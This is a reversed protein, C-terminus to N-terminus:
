LDILDDNVSEHKKETEKNNLQAVREKHEEDLELDFKAPKLGKAIMEDEVQKLLMTDKNVRNDEYYKESDFKKGSFTYSFETLSKANELYENYIDCWPEIFEKNKDIIKQIQDQNKEADKLLTHIKKADKEVRKAIKNGVYLDLKSKYKRATLAVDELFENLEEDTFENANEACVVKEHNILFCKYMLDIYAGLENKSYKMGTKGNSNTKIKHIIKPVFFGGVGGPVMAGVSWLGFLPEVALASGISGICITFTLFPINRSLNFVRRGKENEQQENLKKFLEMYKEINRVTNQDRQM